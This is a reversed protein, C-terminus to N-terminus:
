EELTQEKKEEVKDLNEDEDEKQSKTSHSIRHFYGDGGNFKEKVEMEAGSAKLLEVIEKHGLREAMGLTSECYISTKGEREFEHGGKKISEENEELERKEWNMSQELDQIERKLRTEEDM